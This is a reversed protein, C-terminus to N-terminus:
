EEESSDSSNSSDSSADEDDTDPRDAIKVDPNKKSLKFQSITKDLTRFAKADLRGDNFKEVFLKAEPSDPEWNLVGIFRITESKSIELVRPMDAICWGAASLVAFCGKHPGSKSKFINKGQPYDDNNHLTHMLYGLLGGMDGNSLYSLVTAEITRARGKNGNKKSRVQDVLEKVADKDFIIVNGNYITNNNHNNITQNNHDGNITPVNTSSASTDNTPPPPNNKIYEEHERKLQEYKKKYEYEDALAPRNRVRCNEMHTIMVYKDSYVRGCFKCKTDECEEDDLSPVIIDCPKEKAIHREYNWKRDFCRGCKRCKMKPIYKYM